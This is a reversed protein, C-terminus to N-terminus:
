NQNETGCLRAFLTEDTRDVRLPTVSIWGNYVLDLDTPPNTPTQRRYATYTSAQVLNEGQPLFHDRFSIGGQRSFRIGHPEAPINVNLMGDATPLNRRALFEWVRDLSREAAPFGDPSTSFAVSPIGAYNAEFAAACTGSYAIDYGLNLGRNIGSFVLDFRGFRDVAFRVCDAPTSDISFSRLGLDAFSDREAVEFPRRLVISQGMASQETKPAVILVEGLTRAWKALIRLGEGAIGDDNTLLIKM